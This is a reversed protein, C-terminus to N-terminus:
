RSRKRHFRENILERVLASRSKGEQEALRQLMVKTESDCHVSFIEYPM